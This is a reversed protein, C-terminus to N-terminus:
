VINSSLSNLAWAASFNAKFVLIMEFYVEFLSQATKKMGLNVSSAGREMSTCFITM